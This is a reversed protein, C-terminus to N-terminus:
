WARRVSDEFRRLIFDQVPPSHYAALLRTLWAPKALQDARRVTLVQAFPSFGDEMALAQRAPALGLKGAVSYSLAVLDGRAFRGPLESTPVLELSLERPNRRVDGLRAQPGLEEDFGVLGYHYLLLLARGQEEAASPLALRSGPGLESLRRVQSSYLGFPLTVGLGASVLGREARAADQATEFSGFALEGGALSERLARASALKTVALRLAPYSAAVFRLVEEEVGGLVGARLPAPGPVPAGCAGAGLGVLSAGGELTALTLGRIFSRREV